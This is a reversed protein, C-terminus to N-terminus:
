FIVCGIFNMLIMTMYKVGINFFKVDNKLYFVKEKCYFFVKRLKYVYLYFRSLFFFIIRKVVLEDLDKKVLVKCDLYLGFLRGM